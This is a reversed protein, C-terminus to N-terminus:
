ESVETAACGDSTGLKGPGPTERSESTPGGPEKPVHPNVHFVRTPRGTVPKREEVRLWGLEELMSTAAALHEASKLGRWGRDYVQKATFEAGLQGSSIRKSLELASRERGQTVCAYVRRAHTALFESFAIARKLPTATVPGHGGDIAHFLLALAPVLKRYKSFHSELAESESESRCYRELKGLYELFLAQAEQEFGLWPIGDDGDRRAGVREPTLADLEAFVARAEAFAAADPERDVCKWDRVTNPWVILQFRQLLGDDGVGSAASKVLYEEMPGPQIGGVVSLILCPVEITGRGIRDFTYSGGGDWSELFFTRAEEAEEKDLQRFLGMLEDRFVLFGNKNDRLLEGLKEYTSDNVIKRPRPPHQPEESLISRAQDVLEATSVESDKAGGLRDKRKKWALSKALFEREVSVYAAGAERDLRTLHVLSAKLAPTKMVGPRGIIAGWLNGVVLWNDLEKPRIGVKRGVLSSAAVIAGIAPYELPCQMRESIDVLWDRLREPLLDPSLLQVEPETTTLPLPEPWIDTFPGGGGGASGASSLGCAEAAHPFMGRLTQWNKGQCSNHHCGAAVAGSGFQLVFASWNTHSSEFPCTALVWRTGDRWAGQKAVSLGAVSLFRDVDIKPGVHPTAVRPAEQIRGMEALQRLLPEPVDKLGTEPLRIWSRRHPREASAEGKRALTGYLKTIRSSNHVSEDVDVHSDNFRFALAHLGCKVVGDDNSPLDIAYLLHAGNGSVGEAPEPFGIGRLYDKISQAAQWAHGLEEDTASTDSARIPDVDVLLLRRRLIQQDNTTNKPARQVRNTVVVSTPDIENLVAYVGDVRGDCAIAADVFASPDDFYGSAIAPSGDSRKTVTRLEVVRGPADFFLSAAYQIEARVREPEVRETFNPVSM